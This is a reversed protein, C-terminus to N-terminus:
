DVPAPPIRTSFRVGAVVAILIVIPQLIKFWLPYPLMSVNWIVAALLLAGLFLACGRNGLRGALWATLLATGGWLPVVAALVWDPYREVHRCIEETSGQFDPPFPHVIASFLEVAVVLILATASAALLAGLIRFASALKM